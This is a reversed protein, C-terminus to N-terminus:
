LLGTRTGVDSASADVGTCASGEFIATGVAYSLRLYRPLTGGQPVIAPLDINLLMNGAALDALAIARSQAHTTWTAGATNTDSGQFAITLTGAGTSQFATTVLVLLKPVAAGESGVGLDRANALDLVNTSVQSNGAATSIATGSVAGTTASVTGDFLLRQDLILTALLGTRALYNTAMVYLPEFLSVLAAAVRLTIHKLHKM